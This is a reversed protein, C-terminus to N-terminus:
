QELSPLELRDLEAKGTLLEGSEGPLVRFEVKRLLISGAPTALETDFSLLQRVYKISDDGLEVEIPTTSTVNELNPSM